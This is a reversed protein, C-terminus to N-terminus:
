ISFVFASRISEPAKKNSSPEFKWKGGSIIARRKGMKRRTTKGFDVTSLIVKPSLASRIRLREATIANPGAFDKKLRFKRSNRDGATSNVFQPRTFRCNMNEVTPLRFGSFTGSGQASESIAFATGCKMQPM